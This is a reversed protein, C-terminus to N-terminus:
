QCQLGAVPDGSKRGGPLSTVACHTQLIAGRRECVETWRVGFSRNEYCVNVAINEMKAEINWTVAKMHMIEMLAVNDSHTYV